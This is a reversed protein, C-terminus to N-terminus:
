VNILSNDPIVMETSVVGNLTGKWGTITYTGDENATYNFDVLVANPDFPVITLNITSSLAVGALIYRYNIKFESDEPKLANQNYVINNTDEVISTTGDPYLISLQMGTPDFYEGETYSLKNPQITIELENGLLKTTLIGDCIQLAYINNNVQDRISIFDKVTETAVKKANIDNQETGGIYIDGAFWANGNWDLTHANSYNTINGRGDVYSSSGNGVIHAYKGETDEINYRGQVHQYDGSAKTGSGEAHSVFGSATTGGGEAHSSSGSATTSQGEAHSCYGSAATGGGEAHSSNNSAKTGSGEAHSVTGSATTGQDEAHSCPASATTGQGEAHSYSVSATTGTGEAHSCEGEAKTGYGEAHSCSASAITGSGEAHSSSGYAVSGDGEAHSVFGSANTSNGEAHSSEGSATTNNGEAHSYSASATTGQGEAHSSSNYAKTGIGEAHSGDGSATTSYGEAHSSNNSAVTANGEAHSYQGLAVVDNGMAFSNSGITSGSKRGMSVATTFNPSDIPAYRNHTHTTINGTLKAEIESKTIDSNKQANSPAHAAQSHTYAADYNAKLENTLDNTSLTKGDVKDVKNGLATAMTTAFNPDDGLATSLEKLTDLAAPASNVLGAVRDDVYKKTSPNYDSTPTYAVTNNSTLYRVTREVRPEETDTKFYFTYVTGEIMIEIKEDSKFGTQLLVNGSRKSLFFLEGVLTGDLEEVQLFLNTVDPATMYIKHGELTAVNISSNKYVVDNSVTTEYPLIIIPKEVLDNYKKDDVYLKTAPDYDHTPSYKANKRDIYLFNNQKEELRYLDNIKLNTINLPNYVRIGDLYYTGSTGQGKAGATIVVTYTGYDLDEFSLTPIQYYDGSTSANDIYKSKVIDKKTGDENTAGVGSYVAARILGVAGNTRSYVEVGTGTFTFTATSKATSSYHASGNSYKTDNEVDWTGSYEIGANNDNYVIEKYPVIVLDQTTEGVTFTFTELGNMFGNLTYTWTGDENATLNGYQGNLNDITVTANAIDTIDTKNIVLPDDCTILKYKNTDKMVLTEAIDDVYQKNVLHTNESPIYGDTTAENIKRFTKLVDSKKM